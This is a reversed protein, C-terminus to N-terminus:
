KLLGGLVRWCGLVDAKRLEFGEKEALVTNYLWEVPKQCPKNKATKRQLSGLKKAIAVHIAMCTHHANVQQWEPRRPYLLFLLEIAALHAHCPSCPLTLIPKTREINKVSSSLMISFTLWLQFWVGIRRLDQRM